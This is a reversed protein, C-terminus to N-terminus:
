SFATMQNLDSCIKEQGSSSSEQEIRVLGADPSMSVAVVADFVQQDAGKELHVVREAGHAETAFWFPQTSM